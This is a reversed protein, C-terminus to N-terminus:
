LNLFSGRTLYAGKGDPLFLVFALLYAHLYSPSSPATKVKHGQSKVIFHVSDDDATYPTPPKSLLPFTKFVWQRNILLVKVM